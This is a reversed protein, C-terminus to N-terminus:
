VHARGIEKIWEEVRKIEETGILKKIANRKEPNTALETCLPFLTSQIYIILKKTRTNQAISRAAGLYSGYEDVTGYAELRLSYKKVREGSYLNTTGKDGTGTSISM